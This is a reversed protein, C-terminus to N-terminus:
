TYAVNYFISVYNMFGKFYRDLKMVLPSEGHKDGVIVIYFLLFRKSIFESLLILLLHNVSPFYSPYHANQM